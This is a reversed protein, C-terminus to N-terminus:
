TRAAGNPQTPMPPIPVALPAAVPLPSPKRDTFVLRGKGWGYAWLSLLGVEVVADLLYVPPIVRQVVFVVDVAALVCACGLALFVVEASLRRRYAALCLTGGVVAILAGVTWVLWVDTKPGTVALFSNIHILPWVGTLVYYVGQVLTPHATLYAWVPSLIASGHSEVRGWASRLMEARRAASGPGRHITAM